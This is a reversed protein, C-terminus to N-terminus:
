HTLYHPFRIRIFHQRSSRVVAQSATELRNKEQQITSNELAFYSPHIGLLHHNSKTKTITNLLLKSSPAVKSDDASGDSMLFFFLASANYKELEALIYDHTDYPDSRGCFLVNRCEIHFLNPPHKLWNRGKYKFANDIDFTHLHEFTYPRFQLNPDLQLLQQKFHNLWYDIVPAFDFVPNALISGSSMFRGHMDQEHPLYEEYRSLLYFICSFLDFRLDFDDTTQFFVPMGSERSVFLKQPSIRNELLLATQFVSFFAPHKHEAYSIYVNDPSVQVDPNTILEYGLGFHQSFVFDFTYKIRHTVEPTYIVIM